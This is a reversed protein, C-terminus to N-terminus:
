NAGADARLPWQMTVPNGRLLKLMWHPIHLDPLTGFVFRQMATATEPGTLSDPNRLSVFSRFPEWIFLFTKLTSFMPARVGREDRLGYRQGLQSVQVAMGNAASRGRPDRAFTALVRGEYLLTGALATSYLLDFRPFIHLGPLIGRGARLGRPGDVSGKKIEATQMPEKSWWSVVDIGESQLEIAMGSTMKDVACKGM